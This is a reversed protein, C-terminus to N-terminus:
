IIILSYLIQKYHEDIFSLKSPLQYGRGKSTDSILKSALRTGSNGLLIKKIGSKNAELVLLSEILIELIDNLSNKQDFLNLYDKLEEDKNFLDEIKLIKLSYGKYLEVIEIINKTNEEREKSDLNFISGTDIYVVKIKFSRKREEESMTDFCLHLMARSSPGGSLGLLLTDDKKIQVKHHLTSKFTKYFGSLFEEKTQLGNRTKISYNKNLKKTIKKEPKMEGGDCTDTSCGTSM